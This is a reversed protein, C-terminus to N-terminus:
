TWKEPRVGELLPILQEIKEIRSCDISDYISEPDFTVPILGAARAGISDAFYNDGVYLCMHPELQPFYALAHNFIAPNPKWVSIEGAALTLDFFGELGLSQVVDHLPEERNSILGLVYNQERLYALTNLCTTELSVEPAYETQFWRSIFTAREINNEQPSVQDLLLSSYHVWFADFGLKDMQEKIRKDQGWFHFAWLKIKRVATESIPINMSQAIQIFAQTPSPVPIRLTGDLDFFVAKVQSGVM